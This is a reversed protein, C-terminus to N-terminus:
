CIKQLSVLVLERYNKQFFINLLSLECNVLIVAVASLSYLLLLGKCFALDVSLMYLITIRFMDHKLCFLIYAILRYFSIRLKFRYFFVCLFSTVNKENLEM